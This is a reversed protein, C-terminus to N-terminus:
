NITDQKTSLKDTVTVLESNVKRYHDRDSKLDKVVEKLVANEMRLSHITDCLDKTDMSREDIVTQMSDVVWEYRQVDYEYRREMSCGQCGKLMIVLFLCAVILSMHDKIWQKIKDM